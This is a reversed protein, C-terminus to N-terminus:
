GKKECSKIAQNLSNGNKIADKFCGTVQQANSIGECLDLAKNWDMKHASTKGWQSGKFMAYKFCNGPSYTSTTGKCLRKVNNANWSKQKGQNDWAIKGQVYNYCSTEENKANTRVPPVNILTPIFVATKAPKYKACQSIAKDLTDNKAIRSKFCEGTQRANSTGACLDIAKSWTM